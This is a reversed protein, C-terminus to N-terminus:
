GQSEGVDVYPMWGKCSCDFAICLCHVMIRVYDALLSGYYVFFDM